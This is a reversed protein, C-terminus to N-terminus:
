TVVRYVDPNEFKINENYKYFKWKGDSAKKIQYVVSQHTVQHVTVSDTDTLSNLLNQNQLIEFAQEASSRNVVWGDSKMATLDAFSKTYVSDYEEDSYLLYLDDSQKEIKKIDVTM